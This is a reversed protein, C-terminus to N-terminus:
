QSDRGELHTRRATDVLKGLVLALTAGGGRLAARLDARSIAIKASECATELVRLMGSEGFLAAREPRVIPLTIFARDERKLRPLLGARLFSSKGAGSAGLIVLIRPPPSERLGRLQDLAKIIPAERGFFIGADEA